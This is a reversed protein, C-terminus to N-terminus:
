AKVLGAYEAVMASALQNESELAPELSIRAKGRTNLRECFAQWTSADPLACRVLLEGKAPQLYRLQSQRIVIDLNLQHHQSLSWVVGWGCITLLSAMAGGFATGKDNINPALPASMTLEHHSFHQVRLAMAQCLPIHTDLYRQLEGRWHECNDILAETRTLPHVNTMDIIGDPHAIPPAKTM